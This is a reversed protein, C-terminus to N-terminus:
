GVYGPILLHGSDVVIASGTVYRAPTSTRRM